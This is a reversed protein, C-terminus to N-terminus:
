EVYHMRREELGEIVERKVERESVGIKFDFRFAEGYDKLLHGKLLHEVYIMIFQTIHIYVKGDIYALFSPLSHYNYRFYIRKKHVKIHIPRCRSPSLSLSLSLSLCVSLCLTNAKGTM